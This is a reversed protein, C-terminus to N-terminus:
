YVDQSLCTFRAGGVGALLLRLGAQEFINKIKDRLVHFDPWARSEVAAKPNIRFLFIDPPVIM